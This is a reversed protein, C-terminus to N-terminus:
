EGENLANEIDDYFCDLVLEVYLWVYFNIAYPTRDVIDVIDLKKRIIEFFEDVSFHDSLYDLILDDNENYFEETEFYMTFGAFGGAIGHNNIDQASQVVDRFDSANFQEMSYGMQEFIASLHKDDKAVNYFHELRTM